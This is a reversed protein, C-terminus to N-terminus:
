ADADRDSRVNDGDAGLQRRGHAHDGAARTDPRKKPLAYLAREQSEGTDAESLNTVRNTAADARHISYVERKRQPARLAMILGLFLLCMLDCVFWFYYLARYDVACGHAWAM